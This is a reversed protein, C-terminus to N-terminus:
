EIWIEMEWQTLWTKTEASHSATNVWFAQAKFIRKSAWIQYQFDKSPEHLAQFAQKESESM